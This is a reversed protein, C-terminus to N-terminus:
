LEGKFARQQLSAFITDLKDQSAILYEKNSNISLVFETYRDQDKGNPIPIPLSRIDKLAIFKQTGGRNSKKTIWKFYHSSLLNLIYTNSPSDKTFKILAVNKIAYDPYHDVLVPNGITGIMPMIIDGRDVKSRKNVHFFDEESILNVETLDVFGKSLNKSTVLPKGISVYKPSDHTGDRVDCLTGLPQVNWGKPNTVPDGFMDLFVSQLLEDLKAIAHKRKTRLADAKDLISAIRKQEPLPPLPIKLNGLMPKTIVTQASGQSGSRLRYIWKQLYNYLYIQDLQKPKPRIAAVSRGIACDEGLNLKGATAGVVCILVDSRLALKLPKQTWERIIPRATGFEGAKVFPTGLGGMNCTSGPPAQGMIFDCVESLEVLNM